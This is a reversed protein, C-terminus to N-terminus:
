TLFFMLAALMLMSIALGLIMFFIKKVFGISKSPSVAEKSSITVSKSNKVANRDDSLIDNNDRENPLVFKTETTVDLMDFTPTKHEKLTTDQYLLSAFSKCKGALIAQIKGYQIKLLVGSLRFTYTAVLPLEGVAKQNLHIKLSPQHKSRVKHPLLPIVAVTDSQSLLQKEIAQSVPKSTIWARELVDQLGIDLLTDLQQYIEHKVKDWDLDTIDQELVARIHQMASEQEAEQWGIRKAQKFDPKLLDNLTMANHSM